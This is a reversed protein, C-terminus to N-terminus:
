GESTLNDLVRGYDLAHQFRPSWQGTEWRLLASPSVRAARAAEALRINSEERRRKAEGSKLLARVVAVRKLDAGKAM